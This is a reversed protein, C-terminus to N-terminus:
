LFCGRGAWPGCSWVEIGAGRSRFRMRSETRQIEASTIDHRAKRAAVSLLREPSGIL